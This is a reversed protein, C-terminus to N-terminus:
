QLGGRGERGRVRRLRRQDGGRRGEGLRREQVGSNRGGRNMDSSPEAYPASVRRRPSAACKLFKYSESIAPPVAADLQLSKRASPRAARTASIQKPSHSSAASLRTVVVMMGGM